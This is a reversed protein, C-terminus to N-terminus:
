GPGYYITYITYVCLIDVNDCRLACQPSKLRKNQLYSSESLTALQQGLNTERCISPIKEEGCNGSRSQDERM